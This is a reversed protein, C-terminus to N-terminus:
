IVSESVPSTLSAASLSFEPMFNVGLMDYTSARYTLHNISFTKMLGTYDLRFTDGYELGVSSTYILAIELRKPTIPLSFSSTKQERELISVTYEVTKSLGGQPVELTFVGSSYRCKSHLGVGFITKSSVTPQIICTLDSPTNQALLDTM